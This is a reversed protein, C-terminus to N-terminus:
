RAGGVINLKLRGVMSGRSVAMEMADNVLLSVILDGAVSEAVAWVVAEGLVGSDLTIGSVSAVGGGASDFGGTASGDLLHLRVLDGPQVSDPIDGPRLAIATLVHGEGIAAPRSVFMSPVVLQGAVLPGAAASGILRDQEDAALWDLGPVPTMEVVRLDAATLMQGRELDGSLALVAVTSTSYGVLVAAGLAAAVILSAGLAVM